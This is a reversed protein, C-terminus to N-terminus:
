VMARRARWAADSPGGANCHIAQAFSGVYGGGMDTSAIAGVVRFRVFLTYAQARDAVLRRARCRRRNGHMDVTTTPYVVAARIPRYVLSRLARASKSAASWTISAACSGAAQRPYLQVRVIGRMSLIRYRSLTLCLLLPM